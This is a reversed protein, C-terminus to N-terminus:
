GSFIGVVSVVLYRVVTGAICLSTGRIYICVNNNGKIFTSMVRGGMYIIMCLVNLM